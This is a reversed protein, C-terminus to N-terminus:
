GVDFTPSGIYFFKACLQPQKLVVGIGQTGDLLHAVLKGDPSEVLAGQGALLVLEELCAAIQAVM